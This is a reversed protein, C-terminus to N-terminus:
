VNTSFLAVNGSVFTRITQIFRYSANSEPLHRTESIHIKRSIFVPRSIFSIDLSVFTIEFIFININITFISVINHRLFIDSYETQAYTM